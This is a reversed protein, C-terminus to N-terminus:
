LRAGNTKYEKLSNYSKYNRSQKVGTEKSKYRKLSRNSYHNTLIWSLSKELRRNLDKNKKCM